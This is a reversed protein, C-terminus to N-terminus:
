GTNLRNCIQMLSHAGEEEESYLVSLRRASEGPERFELPLGEATWDIVFTPQYKLHIDEGTPWIDTKYLRRILANTV